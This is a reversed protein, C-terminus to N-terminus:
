LKMMRTSGGIGSKGPSIIGNPDLLDKFASVLRAMAGTKFNHHSAVEDVFSVHTRYELHGLRHGHDFQKAKLYWEYTERGSPPIVPAFAVHGVNKGWLELCTLSHLTPRGTQLLNEPANDILRADLAQGPASTHLKATIITGPIAEFARQCPWGKEAQIERLVKNLFLLTGVFAPIKSSVFAESAPTGHMGIETVVLMGLNSQFFLGDAIPGLGGKSCLSASRVGPSPVSPWLKLGRRKVEEYLSLITVGPEVTAYAYEENIEIIKMRHLDPVVGLSKGRSVTWLPLRFRNAFIFQAEKVAESRVASSPPHDQALPFPYDYSYLGHRGKLADSTHDQSANSAGIESSVANSFADLTTEDVNPPPICTKDM